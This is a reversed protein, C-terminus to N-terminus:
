ATVLELEHGVPEISPVAIAALFADPDDVAFRITDVPPSFGFLRRIRVPEFLELILDTRGEMSITGMGGDIAISTRGDVTRTHERRLDRVTDRRVRVDALLGQRLRIQTPSVTHRLSGFSIGIAAIWVLGYVEVVLVVWRVPEWPILIHLLSMEAPASLAFLMVWGILMQHRVYSYGNPAMRRAKAVAWAILTAFARVESSAFQAVRDPLLGSFAADIHDLLTDDADARRRSARFLASARALVVITILTEIVIFTVALWRVGRAGSAWLALQVLILAPAVWKLWRLSPSM